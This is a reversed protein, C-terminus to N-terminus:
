GHKVGGPGSSAGGAAAAWPVPGRHSDLGAGQRHVPLCAFLYQSIM